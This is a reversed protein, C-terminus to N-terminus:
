VARVLQEQGPVEVAGPVYRRVWSIADQSSYGLGLKALCAVFMGTRGLGAQCHIVVNGGSQSHSLVEPVAEQVEAIPPVSFDMIPLYYVQMGAEQYISRLDRGAARLCEQDSALLVIMSVENEKFAQFLEGHPDYASYPMASRFIKGPFSFPLETLEM